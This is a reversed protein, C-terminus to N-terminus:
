DDIAIRAIPGRFRWAIRALLFVAVASLGVVLGWWLGRPGFGLHFALVLSTPLGIFWFGVINVVLSARTDGAGRLIGASVV